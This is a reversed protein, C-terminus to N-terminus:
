VYARISNQNLISSGDLEKALDGYFSHLSSRQAATRLPATKTTWRKERVNREARHAEQLEHSIQFPIVVIPGSYLVRTYELSHLGELILVGRKPSVVEVAKDRKRSVLDYGTYPFRAGPHRLVERTTFDQHWGMVCTDSPKESAAACDWDTAVLGVEVGDGKIVRHLKQALETKGSGPAGEICVVLREPQDLKIEQWLNRTDADTLFRDEVRIPLTKLRM